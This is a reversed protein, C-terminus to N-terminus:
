PARESSTHQLTPEGEVIQMLKDFGLWWERTSSADEDRLEHVVKTLEEITEQSLAARGVSHQRTEAENIKIGHVSYAREGFASYWKDLSSTYPTGTRSEIQPCVSLCSRARAHM